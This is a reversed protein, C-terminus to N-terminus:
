TLLRLAPHPVPRDASFVVNFTGRTIGDDGLETEFALAIMDDMQIPDDAALTKAVHRSLATLSQDEADTPLGISFHRAPFGTTM